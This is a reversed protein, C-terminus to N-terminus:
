PAGVSVGGAPLATSAATPDAPVTTGTGVTYRHTVGAETNTATVTQGAARLAGNASLQQEARMLYQSMATEQAAPNSLFDAESRVGASAARETWGGAQDQWGIDRLAIPMFQYRGLAGSSPNRAAWGAGASELAAIRNRFTTDAGVPPAGEATEVSEVLRAREAADM